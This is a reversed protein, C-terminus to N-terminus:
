AAVVNLNKTDWSREYLPANNEAIKDTDWNGPGMCIMLCSTYLMWINTLKLFM